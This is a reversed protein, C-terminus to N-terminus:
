DASELYVRARERLKADHSRSVVERADFAAARARGERADVEAAVLDVELAGTGVAQARALCRAATIREGTSTM